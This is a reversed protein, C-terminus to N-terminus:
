ANMQLCKLVTVWLLACLVCAAAQQIAVRLRPGVKFVSAIACGMGAPV